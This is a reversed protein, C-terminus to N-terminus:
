VRAYGSHLSNIFCKTSHLYIPFIVPRTICIHELGPIYTAKWVLWSDSNFVFNVMKHKISVSLM